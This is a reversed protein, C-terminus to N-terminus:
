LGFTFAVVFTSAVPKGCRTAPRFRARKAADLAAEDLGYGLGKIVVSNIVAGTEDLSLEIRVKGEVGAARAEDTYPPKSVAALPKPKVEPEECDGRKPAPAALARAETRVAKPPEPVPVAIGGPGGSGPGLVFGFDPPPADPQAAPQKASQKPPEPAAVPEPEPEEEKPEEKKEPAEITTMEIPIIEEEKPPEVRALIAGIIGHVIVSAVYVVRSSEM